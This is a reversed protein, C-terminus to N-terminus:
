RMMRSLVWAIVVGAVLLDAVAEIISQTTWRKKM